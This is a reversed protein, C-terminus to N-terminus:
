VAADHRLRELLSALDAPLPAELRMKGGTVPHKFELRWAHLFLRRLGLDRLARNFAFDGYKADGAIPHGAHAAHVRAQHTRGTLLEIEVLTADGCARRPHFVSEAEKGEEAVRVRAGRELAAGIRRAGGRWRGQVLALYRKHVEGARLMRHLGVLAPRSKAVLLCGSTDRDLRHVLELMSAYPRQARLAEILGVSVGSGGHAALGAPKDVALLHEDEHLVREELWSFDRGEATKPAAALRVPPLRVLDGAQLRYDPGVRGRNVRVEGKRLLRYIRSKPVGKLTRILYNDLRQGARSEDVEEHRVSPPASPRPKSPPEM